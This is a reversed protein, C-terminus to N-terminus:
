ARGRHCGCATAAAKCRPPTIKMENGRQKERENGREQTPVCARREADGFSARRQRSSWATGNVTQSLSERSRGFQARLFRLARCFTFLGIPAFPLGKKLCSFAAGLVFSLVAKKVDEVLGSVPDVGDEAGWCFGEGGDSSCVGWLRGGQRPWGPWGPWGLGGFSLGRGRLEGGIGVGKAWACRLDCAGCLFSRSAPFPSITSTLYGFPL